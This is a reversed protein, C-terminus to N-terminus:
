TDDCLPVLLVRPMETDLELTLVEMGGNGDPRLVDVTYATGELANKADRYAEYDVCALGNFAVIVDGIRYEPNIGEEEHFGVVMLGYDIGTVDICGIFTRLAPLYEPAYPDSEGVLAELADVCAEAGEYVGRFMFNQLKAWLTAESDGEAPSYTDYAEQIMPLYKEVFLEAETRTKGMGMLQRILSDRMVAVEVSHEGTIATMEMLAEQIKNWCEDQASILAAEDQSWSTARLPISSLTPLYRHLFDDLAEKSTIPLLIQNAAYAVTRMSEDLEVRYCDIIRLKESTSFMCDPRTIWEIHTVSRSWSQVFGQVIDHLAVFESPKLPSAALQELLRDAPGGSLDTKELASRTQEFQRELAADAISGGSVYRQAEDLAKGVATAMLDLKTMDTQTYYLLETVLNKEETSKPYVASRSRYYLYGGAAAACLLLLALFVPLTRRFLSNQMVRRCLPPKSVLFSRLKEMFAEFFETNAQIGNKYRLQQITEPLDDPFAFGRLMVPVINKGRELAFEVERRVWDDENRCRDLAGPSLVLIFDRCEDIVSYLRTNFDGSRLSEVDFFTAYGLEQLRDRLIKATYEGGDRRYSIFVDYKIARM